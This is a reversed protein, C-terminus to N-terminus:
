LTSGRFKSMTAQGPHNIGERQIVKRATAGLIKLDLKFSRNEVYWADMELREEWGLANRGNVQAWGTVGPKVQHRLRQRPSYLPLYEPLLPRPGVISMEGKLVNILSPLEDLSSSRLIRGLRTLREADELLRGSEGRSDRMTRFKYLTFPRELYGPRLQRFLVPRGLSVRVALAVAAILPALVVLVGSAILIDFLRKGREFFLNTGADATSPLDSGRCLPLRLAGV